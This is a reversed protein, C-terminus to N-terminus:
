EITLSFEIHNASDPTRALTVKKIDQWPLLSIVDERLLFPQETVITQGFQGAPPNLNTGYTVFGRPFDIAHNRVDAYVCHDSGAPRVLVGVRFRDPAYRTTVDIRSISRSEHATPLDYSDFGTKVRFYFTADLALNLDFPTHNTVTIATDRFPGLGAGPAKGERKEDDRRDDRRRARKRRTAKDVGRRNQGHRGGLTGVHAGERAATEDDAPLFLGSAALVFGGAAARLVGRRGLYRDDTEDTLREDLMVM